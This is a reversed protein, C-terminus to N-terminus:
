ELGYPSVLGNIAYPLTSEFCSKSAVQADLETSIVEAGCADSFYATFWRDGPGYAPRHGRTGNGINERFRTGERNIELPRVVDFFEQASIIEVRVNEGDAPRARELSVVAASQTM